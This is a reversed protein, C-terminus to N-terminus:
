NLVNFTYANTLQNHIVLQYELDQETAKEVLLNIESANFYSQAAVLALIIILAVVVILVISALTPITIKPFM